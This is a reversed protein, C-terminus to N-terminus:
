NAPGSTNAGGSQVGGHVHDKGVNKGDHTIKGGAFAFGDKSLTLTCDGAKLTVTKATITAGGEASVSYTGDKSMTVAVHVDKDGTLDHRGANKQQDQSAQTGGASGGSAPQQSQQQKPTAVQHVIKNPSEGTMQGQAFHLVQKFADHFVTEGEKLNMPGFRRDISPLALTNSQNGGLSLISVEPGGKPAGNKADDDSTKSKPFTRMGFPHLHEIDTLSQAGRGLIKLAQQLSGDSVKDIAAHVLTTITRDGLSRPGTRNM